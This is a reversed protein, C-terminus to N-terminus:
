FRQFTCTNSARWSQTQIGIFEIQISLSATQIQELVLPKLGKFHAKM